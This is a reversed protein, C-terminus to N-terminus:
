LMRRMEITIGYSEGHADVAKIDHDFIDDFDPESMVAGVVEPLWMQRQEWEADAQADLDVAMTELASLVVRHAELQREADLIIAKQMDIARDNRRQLTFTREERDVPIM